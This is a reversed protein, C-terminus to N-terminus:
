KKTNHHIYHVEYVKKESPCKDYNNFIINFLFIVIIIIVITLGIYFLRNNKTFTEIYFKRQILDDMLGFWTDKIGILIKSFSQQYPKIITTLAKNEELKKNSRNIDFNNINEYNNYTM